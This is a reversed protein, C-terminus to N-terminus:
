YIIIADFENHNIHSDILAKWILAKKTNLKNKTILM